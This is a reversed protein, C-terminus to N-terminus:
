KKSSTLHTNTTATVKSVSSKEVFDVTGDANVVTDYKDPDMGEALMKAKLDSVTM